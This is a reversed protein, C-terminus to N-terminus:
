KVSPEGVDEGVPEPKCDEDNDDSDHELKPIQEDEFDEAMAVLVAAEDTDADLTQDDRTDLYPINRVLRLLICAGTPTELYPAEGARWIFSYGEEM